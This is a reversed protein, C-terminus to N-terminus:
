GSMLYDLHIQRIVDPRKINWREPLESTDLGSKQILTGMGGDFFLMEKGLVDLINSM